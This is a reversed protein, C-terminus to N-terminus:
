YLHMPLQMLVRANSSMIESCIEFKSLILIGYRTAKPPFNKFKYKPRLIKGSKELLNLGENFPIIFSLPRVYAYRM